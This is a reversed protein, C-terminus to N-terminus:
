VSGADLPHSFRGSLTFKLRVGHAGGKSYKRRHCSVGGKVWVAKRDDAGLSLSVTNTVVSLQKQHQDSVSVTHTFSLSDKGSIM